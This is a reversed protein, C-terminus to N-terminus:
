LDAGIDRRFYKDTFQIKQAEEFSKQLAEAKDKGYSSVAIVRGGNTVVEGDKLATGAHFVISGEVSDIGTIPYGKKYAQPYGGSVLMVCVAAREDFAINRLDLNGEAVGEFLDVIDSKLRLMVSETEPDGMRCNYEIVYPEPEGTPTNTRNILGFFIFGKYDIGDAALGEVTPRIIRDEVKQMWEKTAFPVPSVSGMGGTNLGTDHEGIRKYDKAEPLIKYNKGDTLVFVSCEIGSMFEEIVVRSSANGFMGGLMEKLERKAEELTPLILVGKGACLGDAKLVYPAELTELFALGEQLHEGDFTEYRATPIDHRQMFAKAFDKSGELFAGAKSPGIVPVHKTREDAKLDDYIGKVLPDEPGVVVMNIDEAVVFQKIVEFDDAKMPINIGCNATGANGPAIYLKECKESQAIKWALAHERGGSGLLLIKM